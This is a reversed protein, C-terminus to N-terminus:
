FTEFDRLSRVPAAGPELLAAEVQYRGPGKPLDVAFTLKLSGLGAVECARTKEELTKGDRLLRFRVPGKWAADLDNVVVVPFEAPGSPYKEAWADIMLGVPAFADRVYKYFEPEWTLKKVDLWHDSTQGDPRSYGLGCFHLIAACARHSRWFETEAALYRAYLKRRQATTSAPGLLNKYLDRTLTTPTGDRNLWLWGYENVIIPHRHRKAAEVQAEVPEPDGSEGAIRALKFGSDQFHYPHSEIPDGPAQPAGYGNDWPRDSLDLGRVRAIAAGTEDTATENQADWIVVSPHNWRERMWEAYEAALEGSKLGPPYSSWGTGGYWVPFEDQILIGEEDAIRYWSEPPFGICYRLSNWHMDKFRRLLRRVWADSWPLDGHAPDEMFRFICINSGRMFYPKGNLMARGTAPDFRFERMGFPTVLRDSGSDVTLRYLFPSEPSWLRPDAIPVRVEVTRDAGAALESELRAEGVVKGSKAERVTFRVSAKTEAGANRLVAQVRVSKAAIEPAAQVSEISPTGSLILEVSDYIGPIYIKKENDAGTPLSAPLTSTSAGVRVLIENEGPRLAARADFYGPTFSPLHEGLATGNLIVRTGFMAKHIKLTAAAPPPGDLRFTRRYWFAERRGSEVGVDAFAPLAMDILGPVPVRRTYEKPASDRAGQEVQWAGDLSVVRRPSPTEAAAATAAALLAAACSAWARNIM